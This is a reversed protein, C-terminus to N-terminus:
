NRADVIEKVQLFIGRFHNEFFWISFVSRARVTKRIMGTSLCLQFVGYDFDKIQFSFLYIM